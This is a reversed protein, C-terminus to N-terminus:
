RELLESCGCEDKAKQIVDLDPSSSRIAEIEEKSALSLSDWFREERKLQNTVTDLSMRQEFNLNPKVASSLLREALSIPFMATETVNKLTYYYEINEQARRFISFATAVEDASADGDFFKQRVQLANIKACYRFQFPKSAQAFSVEEIRIIGNVGTMMHDIFNMAQMADNKGFSDLREELSQYKRPHYHFRKSM